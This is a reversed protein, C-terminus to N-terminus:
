ISAGVLDSDRKDVPKELIELIRETNERAKMANDFMMRPPFDEPMHEMCQRMRQAMSARGTESGWMSAGKRIAVVVGAVAIGIAILTLSKKM